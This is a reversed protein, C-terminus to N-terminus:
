AGYLFFYYKKINLLCFVSAVLLFISILNMVDTHIHHHSFMVVMLLLGAFIQGLCHQLPILSTCNINSVNLKDTSAKSILSLSAGEISVSSAFLIITGIVYQYLGIGWDYDYILFANSRTDDGKDGRFLYLVENYIDIVSEYISQYNFSAILSIIIIQLGRKMVGKEIYWVSMASTVFYVPIYMLLLLALFRGSLSGSWNFDRHTIIICSMIILEIVMNSFTHLLMSIHLAPNSLILKFTKNLDNSLTQIYKQTPKTSQLIEIRRTSENHSVESLKRQLKKLYSDLKSQDSAGRSHRSDSRTNQSQSEDSVSPSINNKDIGKMEAKDSSSMLIPSAKILIVLKVTWICFMVYGTITESSLVFMHQLINFNIEELQLMSGVLLGTFVSLLQTKRLNAISTRLSNKGMISTAIQRHHRDSSFLGIVLRSIVGLWFSKRCFSVTYMINGLLHFLGSLVFYNYSETKTMERTDSGLRLSSLVFNSISPAFILLTSYSGSSGIKECFSIASPVIIYYNM